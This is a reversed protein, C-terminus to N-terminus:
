FVLLFELAVKNDNYYETKFIKSMDMSNNFYHDYNIRLVSNFPATNLVFNVGVTGRNVGLGRDEIDYGMADWRLAPEIRTFVKSSVPIKVLGQAYMASLEGPYGEPTHYNFKNMFEAELRMLKNDYRFDAGWILYDETSSINTKYFKATARFGNMSGFLVRASYAFTNTWKPNNIGDGNYLGAELAIPFGKQKITYYATLGIDRSSNFYKGIFPRNVFDVANPSVTYSNFLPIAGQGFTLKLEKVPKFVTYLDLVKFSGNDSLDVMFKYSLFKAVDGQVGVRAYKVAFQSDGNDTDMEYKGKFILIPKLVNLKSVSSDAAVSTRVLGKNTFKYSTSEQASLFLPLSFFLIFSLVKTLLKMIFLISSTCLYCFNLLLFFENGVSVDVSCM